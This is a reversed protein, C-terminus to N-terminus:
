IGIGGQLFLYAIGGPGQELADLRLKGALENAGAFFQPLRSLLLIERHVGRSRRGRRIGAIDSLRGLFSVDPVSCLEVHPGKAEGGPVHL